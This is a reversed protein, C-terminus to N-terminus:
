QITLTVVSTHQLVAGSAATSTGTVTIPYSVPGKGTAVVSSVRDGCGVLMGLCLSLSVRKGRRRWVGFLVLVGLLLAGARVPTVMVAAKVTQVTLTFSTVAGGPPILAPNFSATAGAPLGSAALVIPGSLSGNTVEVGFGFTAATGGVVTQAGGGTANLSFDPPATPSVVEVIWASASGVFNTDGAYVGTVTHTGVGLVSSMVAVGGQDLAVTGFGVGGDLFSVTGTPVGQTASIVKALFGVATGSAVSGASSGVSTVTGAKGIVVVGTASVTYNGSAAGTLTATVPYSGVPSFAAAATAFVVAVLGQDRALVGTVTGTLAPIGAGYAATVGAVAAIVPAPTVTVAIVGSEGGVSAAVLRHTGVGLGATSFSGVGGSLAATGLAVPTGGTVDYLTVTQSSSGVVLSGTGYQVVAPGSLTVTETTGVGALTRIVGEGDVQRVRHNRTDTLTVLGAPSIGAVRPGDLRAEVAPGGDGAFGESGTGAVVTVVGSAIRLVRQGVADAVYVNGAKDVSIGKPMGVGGAVASILGTRVAVRRVRHNRTDAILLDGAGDVVLGGPSDLSAGTAAGGDGADGETGNGAATSIMGTALVVRRVRHNGADALFLGGVGDLALAMPGSLRAATALGGDGAFGAAGTGAVTSIVGTGADVRRVRQNHVDAIYLNGAGDVALGQPSDLEAATAAGGDGGFGETGNGAVVVFTGTAPDFRDVVHRGTEAVYVGGGAGFALGAPLLLPVVAMQALGCWGWLLSWVALGGVLRRPNTGSRMGM